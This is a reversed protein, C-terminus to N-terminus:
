IPQYSWKSQHFIGITRCRYHEDTSKDAAVGFKSSYVISSGFHHRYGLAIFANVGIGARNFVIVQRHLVSAQDLSIVRSSHFLLFTNKALLAVTVCSLSFLSQNSLSHCRHRCLSLAHSFPRRTGANDVPNRAPFVFSAFYM